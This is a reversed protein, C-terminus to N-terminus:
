KGVIPRYKKMRVLCKLGLQTMLRRSPKHNLLLSKQMFLAIKTDLNYKTNLVAGWHNAIPRSQPSNM